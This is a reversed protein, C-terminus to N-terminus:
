NPPTYHLHHGEGRSSPACVPPLCPLLRAPLLAWFCIPNMSWLWCRSYSALATGGSSSSRCSFGGLQKTGLNWQWGISSLFWHVCKEKSLYLMHRVERPNEMKAERQVGAVSGHGRCRWFPGCVQWVWACSTDIHKILSYWLSGTREQRQVRRDKEWKGTGLFREPWVPLVQQGELLFPLTLIEHYQWLM